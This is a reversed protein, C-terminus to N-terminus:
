PMSKNWGKEVALMRDATGPHTRTTVPNAVYMVALRAQELTAGMRRMVFGAFEDADLEIAHTRDKRRMVTHGSLHHGIEHALIFVSCWRDRSRKNLDNVFAPNYRIFRHGRRVVAEVNPVRAAKIRFDAQLGLVQLIDATIKEANASFDFGTVPLLENQTESSALQQSRAVFAYLTLLSILLLQKM